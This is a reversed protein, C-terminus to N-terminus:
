PTEETEQHVMLVRRGLRVRYFQFAIIIDISLQINRRKKKNFGNYDICIMDHQLLCYTDSCGWDGVRNYYQSSQYGGHM